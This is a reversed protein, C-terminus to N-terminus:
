RRPARGQTTSSRSGNGQTASSRSGTTAPAQLQRAESLHQKLNPLTKAAWKKLEANDGDRSYREFLAVADEHGKVAMKAYIEDFQAGSNGQLQGLMAQHEPDPATPLPLNIKARALVQKLEETTKQHDKVMHDAFKKVRADRSRTTALRSSEVEFMDSMAVTQVFTDASISTRESQARVPQPLLLGVALVLVGLAKTTQM